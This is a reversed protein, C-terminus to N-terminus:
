GLNRSLFLIISINEGEIAEPAVHGIGLGRGNNANWIKKCDANKADVAHVTGCGSLSLGLAETLCALPNATFLGALLIYLSM